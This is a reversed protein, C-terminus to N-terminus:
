PSDIASRALDLFVRKARDYRTRSQAEIKGWYPAGSLTLGVAIWSVTPLIPLELRAKGISPARTEQVHSGTGM